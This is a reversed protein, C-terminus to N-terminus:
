AARSAREAALNILARETVEAFGRRDADVLLARWYAAPVNERRKMQQAHGYTIGAGAAFDSLSPWLDILDTFTDMTRFTCFAGLMTLVFRVAREPVFRAHPFPHGVPQFDRARRRPIFPWRLSGACETPALVGVLAM